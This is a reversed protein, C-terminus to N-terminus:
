KILKGQLHDYEHQLIIPILDHEKTTFTLSIPEVTTITQFTIDVKRERYADKIYNPVSLCGESRQITGGYLKTIVPNIFERAIFTHTTKEFGKIVFIRYPPNDEDDWIQNASLGVGASDLLTDKLDQILQLVDESWNPATSQTLIAQTFLSGPDTFPVDVAITNLIPNGITNITKIM